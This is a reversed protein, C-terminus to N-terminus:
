PKIAQNLFEATLAEFEPYVGHIAQPFVVIKKDPSPISNYAAFVSSPVCTTDILGTTVLVKAHKIGAAFYAADYYPVAAAIAPDLPQRNKFAIFRPWGADRGAFIGSHDCLAPEHAIVGSVAPDLGAAVLAQGGGQSGGHVILTRGDWDSRDKVYELARILRRFMGNFYIKERDGANELRYDKMSGQYLKTYEAAPNGNPLGHANLDLVLFGKAAFDYQKLSSRVGAAHFTILAPFKRGAPNAPVTLYASVPKTGPVPIQVDYLELKGQYAPDVPVPSVSAPSRDALVAERQRRWFDAFDAPAPRGPLLTEADTLAGARAYIKEKPSLQYDVKILTFGAGKPKVKVALPTEATTLEGKGASFHDGRFSYVLKEGALPKGGKLLQINFVIEEGDRYLGNERETWAEIKYDGRTATPQTKLEYDAAAGTLASLLAAVLVFYRKM